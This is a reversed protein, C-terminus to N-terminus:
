KSSIKSFTAKTENKEPNKVRIENIEDGDFGFFNTTEVSDDAATPGVTVSQSYVPDGNVDLGIRTYTTEKTITEYGGNDWATTSVSTEKM